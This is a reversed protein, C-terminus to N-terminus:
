KNILKDIAQAIKLDEPTTIKINYCSGEVLKVRHGMREVLSADDTAEANDSDAYAKIILGKEFVQPTQIEWIDERNITTTVMLNNKNVKKLTNKAPLGVAVAGFKVAGNIANTIIKEDIFPRAGDHILVFDTDSALCRLGNSVSDKRTAGGEVIDVVKKLKKKSVLNKAYNIDKSNFVLVIESILRHNNLIRLTHLIIPEGNILVLPKAIKSKLRLGFGASPVIASVKNKM